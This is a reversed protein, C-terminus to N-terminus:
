SCLKGHASAIFEVQWCSFLWVLGSDHPKLVLSIALCLIGAPVFRHRLFCWVAVLCLSIALGATNGTIVLLESNALLFGVLIGSLIPAYDAGISWILFSAFVLSGAILAMWLFHAIGWPLLAFPVTFSFATPLYIYRMVQRAQAVDEPRGGQAAATFRLLENENYPDCHQLLCKAPYYLVRFDVMEISSTSALLAGLSLFVASGLLMLYLGDRRAKKM